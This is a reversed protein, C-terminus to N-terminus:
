FQYVSSPVIWGGGVLRVQLVGRVTRARRVRLGYEGQPTICYVGQAGSFINRECARNIERVTTLQRTGAITFTM